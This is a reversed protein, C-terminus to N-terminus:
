ESNDIKFDRYLEVVTAGWGGAEPPADRFSAVMPNNKLIGQVRKKQIGKGKGHIIRVSYIASRLCETLYDELLDPIDQPRFTHLDLVDEIPLKVPEM